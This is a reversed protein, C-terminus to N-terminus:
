KKYIEIKEIPITLTEGAPVKLKVFKEDKKIKKLLVLIAVKTAATACTGTTYGCRLKKGQFYVYNEM